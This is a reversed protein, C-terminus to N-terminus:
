RVESLNKPELLYLTVAKPMREAALKPNDLSLVIRKFAEDGKKPYSVKIRLRTASFFPLLDRGEKKERSIIPEYFVGQGYATNGSKLITEAKALLEHNLAHRVILNENFLWLNAAVEMLFLIGLVVVGWQIGKVLVADERKM